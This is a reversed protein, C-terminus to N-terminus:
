KGDEEELKYPLDFTIKEEEGNTYITNNKLETMSLLPTSVLKFNSFIGELGRLRILHIKRNILEHYYKKYKDILEAVKEYGIEEVLLNAALEAIDIDDSNISEQLNM